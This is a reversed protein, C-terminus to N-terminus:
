EPRYSAIVLATIEVREVTSDDDPGNVKIPQQYRPDLSRPWLWVQGDIDLAYEKITTEVLGDSRWRQVIVREGPEPMRALSDYPVCVVVSGDPFHRNMSPGRVELGFQRLNGHLPHPPVAIGYQDDESWELAEAWFGAQVHGIVNIPYVTTQRLGEAGIFEHMPVKALKSLAVLAEPEPAAGKEWRSVASQDRGVLRGLEAQSLGLHRRLSVIKHRLNM